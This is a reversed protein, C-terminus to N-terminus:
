RRPTRVRGRRGRAPGGRQGGERLAVALREMEDHGAFFEELENRLDPHGALLRGRDPERGAQRAEVYALLVEHLREERDPEGSLDHTM